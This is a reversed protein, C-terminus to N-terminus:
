LFCAQKLSVHHLYFVHVRISENARCLLHWQQQNGPSAFRWSILLWSISRVGMSYELLLEVCSQKWSSTMLHLCKRTVPGKHPSNVLVPSNGECLGIVCLRLTKKSRRRCLRNLLSDLCRHNSFSDRENHRWQLTVLTSKALDRQANLVISILLRFCM